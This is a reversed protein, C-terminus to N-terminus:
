YLALQAPKVLLHHELDYKNPDKTSLSHVKKEKSITKASTMSNCLKEDLLVILM